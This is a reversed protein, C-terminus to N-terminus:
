HPANDSERKGSFLLKIYKGFPKELIGKETIIYTILRAPTIDFGYYCAKIQKLTLQHGLLCTVEQGSREEIEIQQGSKMSRDFTSVPAAVFFPVAHERAALAVMYTGIKNAVDGNRAIRDAGVIVKNVIGRACFLGVHNDPIIEVDIGEEHLEWATLRAGQLYPRTETAVVRIRKGSRHAARIVGLATGYGGTALAGANCHTLIVDGDDILEAGYQGLMTNNEIDEVHIAIASKLLSDLLDSQLRYEAYAGKMRDLAWSLNVATPRTAKLKEYVHRVDDDTIRKKSRLVQRLGLVMGYAAVIGILPAGRITMNQIARVVDNTTRCRVYRKKFPLLRQDLLYLENDKWFIHDIM